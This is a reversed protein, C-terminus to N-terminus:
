TVAGQFPFFELFLSAFWILSTESEHCNCKFTKESLSFGKTAKRVQNQQSSPACLTVPTPSTHISAATTTRSPGPPHDTADDPTVRFTAASHMVRCEPSEPEEKTDCSETPEEYVTPLLFFLSGQKFISFVRCEHSNFGWKGRFMVCLMVVAMLFTCYSGLM